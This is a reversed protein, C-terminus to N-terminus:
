IVHLMYDVFQNVTVVVTSSTQINKRQLVKKHQFRFNMAAIPQNKQVSIYKELVPIRSNYAGLKYNAFCLHPWHCRKWFYPLVKVLIIPQWFPQYNEDHELYSDLFFFIFSTCQLCVLHPVQPYIPVAIFSSSSVAMVLSGQLM